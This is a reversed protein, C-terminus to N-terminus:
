SVDSGSRYAEFADGTFFLRVTQRSMGSADLFRKLSTRLVRAAIDVFFLRM